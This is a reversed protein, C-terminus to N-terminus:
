RTTISDCASIPRGGSLKGTMCLQTAGRMLGLDSSKVHIVQDLLGDGNVDEERASTERAPAGSPGLRLTSPAVDTADFTASSLLAVPTVGAQLNMPNRDSGPMVDIPTWAVDQFGASGQDGSVVLTITRESSTLPVTISSGQLAPDTDATSIYWEYSVISGDADTSASADLILTNGEAKPNIVATPVLSPLSPLSPLCLKWM